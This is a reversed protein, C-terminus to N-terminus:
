HGFMEVQPYADREFYYKTAFVMNDENTELGVNEIYGKVMLIDHVSLFEPMNLQEAILPTFDDSGLEAKETDVIICVTDKSLTAPEALFLWLKYSYSDINSLINGFKTNQYTM